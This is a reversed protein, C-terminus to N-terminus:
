RIASSRVPHQAPGSIVGNLPSSAGLMIENSPNARPSPTLGCALLAGGLWISFVGSVYIRRRSILRGPNFQQSKLQM